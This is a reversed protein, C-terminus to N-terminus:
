KRVSSNIEVGHHVGNVTVGGCAAFFLAVTLFIGVWSFFGRM